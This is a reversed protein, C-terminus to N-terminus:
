TARARATISRKVYFGALEAFVFLVTGIGLIYKGGGRLPYGFIDSVLTM